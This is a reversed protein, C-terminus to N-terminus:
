YVHVGVLASASTLSSTLGHERLSLQRLSDLVMHRAGAGAAERCASVQM